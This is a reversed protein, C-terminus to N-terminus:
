KMFSQVRIVYNQTEGFGGPNIPCQWAPIARGGFSAPCDTSVAFPPKKGDSDMRDGPGANYSAILDDNGTDYLPSGSVTTTAGSLGFQSGIDFQSSYGNISGSYTRLLNAALTISEKPNSKLWECSQGATAPMLQMFGCAGAGSTAAPNCGSEASAIARLLNSSVGTASAVADFDAQYARCGTALSGTGTFSTNSGAAGGSAATGTASGALSKTSCSFTFGNGSQLGVIPNKTPDTEQAFLSLVTSVILWAGLMVAVGSLTSAIGARAQKMMGEDGTSVIYWLGMATIVTLAIALMVRMGWDMIRKGGVVVHCLTCPLMEEATGSSRGCPVLGAASVSEPIAAGFVLSWLLFIGLLSGRM